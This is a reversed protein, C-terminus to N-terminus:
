LACKGPSVVTSATSGTSFGNTPGFGAVQSGTSVGSTALGGNLKTTFTNSNGQANVVGGSTFGGASGDTTGVAIVGPVGPGGVVPGGVVPGGVVPGPVVPGGVVPGGVVPGPNGVPGLCLFYFTLLMGYSAPNVPLLQLKRPPFM